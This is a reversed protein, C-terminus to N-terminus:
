RACDAGVSVIKTATFGKYKGYGSFNNSVYLHNFGFQKSWERLNDVIEIYGSPHVVRWQASLAKSVKDKQSESQHYNSRYTRGQQHLRKLRESCQKRHEPSGRFSRKLLKPKKPASRRQEALKELWQKGQDTQCYAKRAASLKQKHLDSLAKGGGGFGGPVLNYGNNISDHQNILVDEQLLTDRRDDSEYITEMTWSDPHYKNFAHYLLFGISKAQKAM